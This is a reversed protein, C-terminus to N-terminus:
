VAGMPEHFIVTAPDVIPAHAAAGDAMVLVHSEPTHEFFYFIGEEEMLRSVFNLESERYQVCYERPEYQNQLVFRYRDSSLGSEGLVKKIIDPVSLQQFIRSWHRFALLWLHPVLEAHYITFRGRDGVQEFRSVM